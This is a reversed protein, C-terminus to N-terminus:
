QQQTRQQARRLLIANAQEPSINHQRAYQQVAAQWQAARDQPTPMQSPGAPGAIPRGDEGVM